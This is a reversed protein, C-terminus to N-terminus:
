LLTLQEPQKFKANLKHIEDISLRNVKSKMYEKVSAALYYSLLPPVANGVQNFQSTESGSFEYWDPFSQLRAAERVTLRRREGNPLRIRMMDGTAGALNRCTVTRSPQDLHLDRPRICKSAKEYRAVYEDMSPTLFKADPPIQTALEGLAEGATVVRNLPKPFVFGGKHGVAIVRNRKQPVSYHVTNFLEYDVIYGLSQFENIIQELYWKNRYMMGLVNEFLFLEPEVRKVAAIFAPFGDRSDKLGKQNGGVSFPQCPPGGIIVSAEPYETFTTLETQFCDTKLNRRYTESYDFEKEFGITKFGQAEFGIALGGAGAFLDLATSFNGSSPKFTSNIHTM